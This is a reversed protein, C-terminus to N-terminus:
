LYVGLEPKEAAGAAATKRKRWACQYSRLYYVVDSYSYKAM